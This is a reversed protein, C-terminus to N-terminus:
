GNKRPVLGGLLQDMHANHEIAAQLARRQREVEEKVANLDAQAARLAPPDDRPVEPPPRFLDSLWGM